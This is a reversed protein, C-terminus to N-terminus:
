VSKATSATTSARLAASAAHRWIRVAALLEAHLTIGPSHAVSVALFRAPASASNCRRVAADLATAKRTQVHATTWCSGSDDGDDHKEPVVSRAGSRVSSARM